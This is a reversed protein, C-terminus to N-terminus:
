AMATAPRPKSARMEVSNETGSGPDAHTYQPFQMATHGVPARINLESCSRRSAPVHSSLRWDTVSVIQGYQPTPQVSDRCTWSLSITFTVDGNSTDTVCPLRHM